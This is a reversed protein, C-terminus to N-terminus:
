GALRGLVRIWLDPHVDAVLARPPVGARRLAADVVRGPAVTRLSAALCGGRGTFGVDVLDKWTALM